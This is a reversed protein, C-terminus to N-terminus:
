ASPDLIRGLFLVTGTPRDVIFYLFPRDLTIEAPEPISVRGVVVATAAAAETGAENVAVFAEHLVAQIFLDRSGDIGSFDAVGGQFADTMGLAVLADNLGVATRYSFKPVTVAVRHDTLANMVSQYTLEGASAEGMSAEIEDFRGEDPLVLVMALEAADYELEVARFGDGEAYRHEVDQSMMRATVTSGDLREFSGDSTDSEEFPQNWAANFYIANTLVLTTIPTIVGMPLLEPIRDETREGVWRNITSRSGEPDGAFDLAFLAAGYHEGLVDVYATTFPYGVQGWIANTVALRFPGGDASTAREGRSVLALDTANMAPHLRVEDIFHLADRMQEETRGEAGAYTMALAVSVSYPSLFLNGDRGRLQGYLDFAFARNGASAEDVDASTAAPASIRDKSSRVVEFDETPPPSSESCGAHACLVVALGLVSSRAHM